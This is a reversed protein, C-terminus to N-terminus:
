RVGPLRAPPEGDALRHCEARFAVAEPDDISIRMGDSAPTMCSMVIRGRTDQEDKFLKVACQRCAGVSHMAPHWCFFPVNFGLSLCVDLVNRDGASFTYPTNDIYITPM